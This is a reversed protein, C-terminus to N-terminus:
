QDPENNSKEIFTKLSTGLIYEWGATFSERAFDELNAPFSEIGEHTLKLRTKDGEEFLEFTVVSEGPYDKYKWSYSLKKGPEVSLVKCIHLYKKEEKEGYFQFEFGPEAKFDDLDFYWQKMKKNDTIASWVIDTSANLIREVVLPDNKMNNNKIKQSLTLQQQQDREIFAELADLKKSWFKGYQGTWDAVQKLPHLNASVNKERGNQQITILGCETLIRIHKSIAPRSITFNEAVANLNMTNGSLLHIIQRRTPDAIAQFVDRRM